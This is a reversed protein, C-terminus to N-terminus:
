KQSHGLYLFAEFVRFFQCMCSLIDVDGFNVYNPNLYTYTVACFVFVLLLNLYNTYSCSQRGAYSNM